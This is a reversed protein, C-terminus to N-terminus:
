QITVSLSGRNDRWHSPSENVRLLLQGTREPVITARDGIDIVDLQQPFDIAPDDEIDDTAYPLIAGILRGLPKGQYYEITVGNARCPWPQGDHAIQFEGDAVIALPKGKEVTFATVQWGRDVAVKFRDRDGVVTELAAREIDYGYDVESLFTRWEFELDPWRPELPEALRQNFTAPDDGCHRALEAFASQSLRHRSLYECAAWAWAYSEVQRFAPAPTQLVDVLSRMGNREVATRLLAVRGWYPTEDRSGVRHAITLKGERWANLGVLEAMGEAYWPAALGGLFQNMFAHTGEHLLLHRTYYDGPQVYVWMADDRQFGALFQPLDAPFLGAREFRRQDLIVSGSQRWTAVQSEDVGFYRCWQPVAQDFVRALEDVDPRDRVDTYLEFHEGFITRIGNAAVRAEDDQVATAASAAYEMVWAADAALALWLVARVSAGAAHAMRAPAREGRLRGRNMLRRALQRRWLSAEIM